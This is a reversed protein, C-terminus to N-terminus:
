FIQDCPLWFFFEIFLLCNGIHFKLMSSERYGSCLFIISSDNMSFVIHQWLALLCLYPSHLWFIIMIQYTLYVYYICCRDVLHCWIFVGVDLESCFIISVHRQWSAHILKLKADYWLNILSSGHGNECITIFCASNLSHSCFQFTYGTYLSFTTENTVLIRLRM